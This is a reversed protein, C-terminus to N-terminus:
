TWVVSYINKIEPHSGNFKMCTLPDRASTCVVVLSCTVFEVNFIVGKGESDIDNGCSEPIFKESQETLEGPEAFWDDYSVDASCCEVVGDMKAVVDDVVLAEVDVGSLGVAGNVSDVLKKADDGFVSWSLDIFISAAEFLVVNLFSSGPLGIKGAWIGCKWGSGAVDRLELSELSM